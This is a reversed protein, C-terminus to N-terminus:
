RGHRGGLIKRYGRRMISRARRNCTQSQTFVSDLRVLWAAGGYLRAHRVSAIMFPIENGRHASMGGGQYFILQSATTVPAAILGFRLIIDFDAVFGVTEDYGGLARVTATRFWCAQHCHSQMGFAHRVRKHPVNGITAQPRGTGFGHVAGSVAWQPNTALLTEIESFASNKHLSDGSNLYQVYRGQALSTGKNMGDYVGSDAESLLVCLEDPWSSMFSNVVAQTASDSSGDVVVVQVTM